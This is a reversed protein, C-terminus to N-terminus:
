SSSRILSVSQYQNKCLKLDFIRIAVWFIQYTQSIFDTLILIAFIVHDLKYKFYLLVGAGHVYEIENNEPGMDLPSMRRLTASTRFCRCTEGHVAAFLVFFVFPSGRGDTQHSAHNYRLVLHM